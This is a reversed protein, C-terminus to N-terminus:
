FYLFYDWKIYSVIYLSVEIVWFKLSPWFIFWSLYTWPKFNLSLHRSDSEQNRFWMFPLRIWGFFHWCNKSYCDFPLFLLTVVIFNCYFFFVSHFRIILPMWMFSEQFVMCILLASWTKKKKLKKMLCMCSMNCNQFCFCTSKLIASFKNVGSSFVCQEKM